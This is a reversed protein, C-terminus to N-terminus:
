ERLERLIRGVREGQKKIDEKLYHKEEMSQKVSQEFRKDM